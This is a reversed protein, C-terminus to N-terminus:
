QTSKFPAIFLLLWLGRDDSVPIGSLLESCRKDSAPVRGAPTYGYQWIPVPNASSLYYTAPQVSSRSRFSCSATANLSFSSFVRELANDAKQPSFCENALPLLSSSM